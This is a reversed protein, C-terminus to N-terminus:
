HRTIHYQFSSFFCLANIDQQHATSFQRCEIHIQLFCVHRAVEKAADIRVHGLATEHLGSGDAFYPVEGLLVKLAYTVGKGFPVGDEFLVVM